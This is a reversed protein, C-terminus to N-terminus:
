FYMYFVSKTILYQLAFQGIDMVCIHVYRYLYDKDPHRCGFFLWSKGVKFGNAIM